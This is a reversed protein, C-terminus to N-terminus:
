EEGVSENLIVTKVVRTAWDLVIAGTAVERGNMPPPVLMQRTAPKVLGGPYLRSLRVRRSEPLEVPHFKVRTGTLLIEDLGARRALIRLRSVDIMSTVENPPQGYRDTLEAVMEDIDQDTKAAALRRYAELRLREEPVYEEPIHADVPLDIRVETDVSKPEGKFESLAEGVLRVYLDFGVDAIHGSQEGGLLNGAGRIELDKLAVQMGSGLDTNQAITSLREHATESLSQDPSHLFYAYARSRSRGVRGRLQHLQSLGMNEARDVILTNANAIDIGSEVITTCVLVDIRGEWFDLVVQELQNEPMRGHAVAINAEPVLESLRRATRDISEVRNHVFFVQGERLLERHIAATVQREDYSGVYTLVPLREEPPTAITSMERIGTIAMELTRPIPTASMALMDVDARLAKLHDKHEVGFRQEEDVIVLGLDRYRIQPALLRHTGIVVDIKGEALEEIIHKSEKDSQFRSLAAVRIPFGSFREGFTQLHQQVLLTTPVLVAVQKGDQIAKFAARVAIETKGYGVDGCVLRDMPVPKEMDSKVEDISSMQDATEIHEFADELERQWPTDPGFAHGPAAQRAAYLRVLEAAIDKVAKRARGKAKEWDSGGLKNVRPEEGGVYRTVSQLQDTPIFLRDPPFGRKGPAYEVVLFERDAGRVDRHIMEIYRGVGHKEHVIFDGPQLSLPDVQHRRRAPLKGRNVSRSAPRRTLDSGAYVALKAEQSQFGTRLRGVLIQVVGPQFKQQERTAPVDAERLVEALRDASGSGAAVIMIRWGSSARQQVESLAEASGPFPGVPQLGTDVATASAERLATISQRNPLLDQLQDWSLLVGDQAIVPAEGGGSATSWAAAAFEQATGLADESRGAVRQPEVTISTTSAPLLEPLSVMRESLTPAFAEMGPITLGEGIQLLDERSEPHDAAATQARDRLEETVLLERAPPLLIPTTVTDLSRQDAVAFWRMEDITDGWLEIRLPHEAIPPFIDIIGGRVAFQGRREVLDCREYGFEVLKAALEVPDVDGHPELRLPLTSLTETAVPQMLARVSAVVVDIPGAGPLDPEPHQLRRLVALRQGVIDASPSIREHPLTEWAPFRAVRWAPKWFALEDVLDEAERGTATVVLLPPQQLSLVAGVAGETAVVQHAGLANPSIPLEASFIIESAGPFDPM